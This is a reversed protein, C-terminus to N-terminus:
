FQYWLPVYIPFCAWPSFNFIYHLPISLSFNHSAVDMNNVGQRDLYNKILHTLDKKGLPFVWRDLVLLRGVILEEEKKSLETTWGLKQGRRNHLRALLTTKPVGYHKAEERVLM